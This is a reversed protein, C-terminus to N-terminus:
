VAVAEISQLKNYFTRLNHFGRRRNRNSGRFVIVEIGIEKCARCDCKAWPRAELVERYAQMPVRESFELGYEEVADLTEQLSLKGNDYARLSNLSCQELARLRRQDKHGALIAQKFKRNEDAQPVRIATFWRQGDFYNSKGDKFARLMPSTSDFSTIGYRAFKEISDAKTFGFLHLNVSPATERVAQLVRHIQDEKLPVMGGLAIYDYGM